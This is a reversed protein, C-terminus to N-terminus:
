SSGSSIFILAPTCCLVQFINIFSREFLTMAFRQLTAFRDGEVQSQKALRRAIVYQYSIVKIVRKEAGLGKVLGCM